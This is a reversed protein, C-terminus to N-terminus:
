AFSDCASDMGLSDCASTRHKTAPNPNARPRPAQPLNAAPKRRAGGAHTAPHPWAAPARSVARTLCHPVPPHHYLHAARTQRVIRPSLHWLAQEWTMRGMQKPRFSENVWDGSSRAPALLVRWRWPM